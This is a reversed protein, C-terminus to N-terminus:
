AYRTYTEARDLDGKKVYYAAERQWSEAKKLYYEAENRYGEAKKQYYEAQRQYSKAKNLYHSNQAAAQPVLLLFSIFILLIQKMNDNTM